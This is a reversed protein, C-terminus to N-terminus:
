QFLQTPTMYFCDSAAERPINRAWPYSDTRLIQRDLLEQVCIVIRDQQEYKPKGPPEAPLIDVQLAPYRPKIGQNPLDGPSPFPWGSWYEPGSFKM